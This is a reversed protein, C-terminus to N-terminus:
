LGAPFATFFILGATSAKFLNALEEHRKSDIPGDGTVAVILLFWGKEKYHLVVDPMKGRDLVSVGLKALYRKDYEVGGDGMDGVYVVKSGPAFRPAFQNVIASIM